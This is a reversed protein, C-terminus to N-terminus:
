RVFKDIFLDDVTTLRDEAKMLQADVNFNDANLLADKTPAPVRPSSRRTVDFAAATLKPDLNPFRKQVIALAEAPHDQIYAAAEAFSQGIKECLAPNKECTERKTMLINYAFPKMDAPDGDPGSAVIVGTGAIVPVLPWPLSMAFGDISKTEFAALMADPQLVAIKIQEPDFGARVALLRVYGHVISNISEVAITRGRLLKAREALPAKADFRGEEALNKRLVIQVMIRDLMEVITVLRQGRSAARTLTISSGQAFDASGSVVANFSGVGTIPVSKVKLGHKAWLGLDDAVFSESFTLSYAPIAMTVEDLASKQAHCPAAGLALLGAAILLIRRHPGASMM